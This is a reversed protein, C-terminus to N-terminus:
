HYPYLDRGSGRHGVGDSNPQAYSGGDPYVNTPWNWLRGAHRYALGDNFAVNTIERLTGRILSPELEAKFCPRWPLSIIISRVQWGM